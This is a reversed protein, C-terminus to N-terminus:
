NGRTNRDARKTGIIDAEVAATRNEMVSLKEEIETCSKVVKCVSGQLHKTPIRARRSEARTETKLERITDYIMQLMKADTSTASNSPAQRDEGGDINPPSDFKSNKELGTLRTGLYDLAKTSQGLPDVGGMSGSQTKICRRQRRQPRVTSKAVSLASKFESLTSGVVVSQNCGSSSAESEETLLYFKHGGDRSWDPVKKSRGVKRAEVELLKGDSIGGMLDRSCLVPPMDTLNHAAQIDRNLEVMQLQVRDGNPVM